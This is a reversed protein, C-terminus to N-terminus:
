RSLPTGAKRGEEAARECELIRKYIAISREIIYDLKAAEKESLMTLRFIEPCPCGISARFVGRRALPRFSSEPDIQHFGPTVERGEADLLNKMAGLQGWPVGGTMGTHHFYPLQKRETKGEKQVGILIMLNWAADRRLYNFVPYSVHREEGELMVEGEFDRRKSEPLLELVDKLDEKLRTELCRGEPSLSHTSLSGGIPRVRFYTGTTVFFVDGYPKLLLKGVEKYLDAIERAREGAIVGAREPSLSKSSLDCGSAGSDERSICAPEMAKVM